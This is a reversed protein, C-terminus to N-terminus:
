PYEYGWVLRTVKYIRDISWDVQCAFSEANGYSTRVEVMAADPDVPCPDGGIHAQWIGKALSRPKIAEQHTTTMVCGDYSDVVLVNPGTKRFDYLKRIPEQVYRLTGKYDSAAVQAGNFNFSYFKQGIKPEKMADSWKYGDDPEPLTITRANSDVAPTHKHGIRPKRVVIWRTPYYQDSVATYVTGDEDLFYEGAEPTRKANGIIIHGDPAKPKTEKPNYESM